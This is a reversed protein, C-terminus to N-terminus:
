NITMGWQRESLLRNIIVTIIIIVMSNMLLYNLFPQSLGWIYTRILSLWRTEGNRKSPLPQFYSLIKGLSLINELHNGSVTGKSKLLLLPAITRQKKKGLNDAYPELVTAPMKWGHPFSTVSFALM